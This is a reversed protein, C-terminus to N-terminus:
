SLPQLMNRIIYPKAGDYSRHFAVRFVRIGENYYLIVKSMKPLRKEFTTLIVPPESLFPDYQTGDIVGEWSEQVASLCVFLKDLDPKKYYVYQDLVGYVSDTGQPFFVQCRYGESKEKVALMSEIIPINAKLIKYTATRKDQPM